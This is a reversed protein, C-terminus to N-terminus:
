PQSPSAPVGNGGGILIPKYDIDPLGTKSHVIDDLTYKTLFVDVHDKLARWVARLNCPSGPACCDKNIPKSDCIIEFTAGEAAVLIDKLSIEKAPRALKYGGQPGRISKVINNKRLRQLIQQTYDLAIKQDAAIEAAPVALAGANEKSAIFSACHIGYEGWQTIRM